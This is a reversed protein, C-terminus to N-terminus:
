WPRAMAVLKPELSTQMRSGILLTIMNTMCNRCIKMSARSMPLACDV